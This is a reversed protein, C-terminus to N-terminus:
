ERVYGLARLRELDEPTFDILTSPAARGALFAQLDRKLAERAEPERAAVNDTEAPDRLYDYLEEAGDLSNVILHWRGQRVSYQTGIEKELMDSGYAGMSYIPQATASATALLSTGEFAAPPDFGLLDLITPAIQMTTVPRERAARALRRGGRAERVILPVRVV